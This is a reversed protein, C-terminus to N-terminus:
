VEHPMFYATKPRKRAGNTTAVLEIGVKEFRQNIRRLQVEAERRVLFKLKPHLLTM